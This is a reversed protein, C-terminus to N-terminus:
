AGPKPAAPAPPAGPASPAAPAPAAPKGGRLIERQKAIRDIMGDWDDPNYPFGTPQGTKPNIIGKTKDLGDSRQRVEKELDGRYMELTEGTDTFKITVKEQMREPIYKSGGGSAGSVILWGAIGMFVLAVAWGIWPSKALFERLWNM